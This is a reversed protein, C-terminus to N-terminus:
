VRKQRVFKPRRRTDRDPERSGRRLRPNSNRCWSLAQQYPDPARRGLRIEIKDAVDSVLELTLAPAADRHACLAIVQSPSRDCPRDVGLPLKQGPSTHANERLGRRWPVVALRGVFEKLVRSRADDRDRAIYEGRAQQHFAPWELGEQNTAIPGLPEPGDLCRSLSAFSKL